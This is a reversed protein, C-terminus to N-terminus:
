SRTGSRCRCLLVSGGGAANSSCVRSSGSVPGGTADDTVTAAQTEGPAGLQNVM